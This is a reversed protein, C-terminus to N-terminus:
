KNEEIYEDIIKRAKKLDNKGYYTPINIIKGAVETAVPCEKEPFHVKKYYRAPSVPKEYWFGDFYYGNERLKKLLEGRNNVLCFERLLPEGAKKLSKLPM